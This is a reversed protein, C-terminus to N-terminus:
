RKKSTLFIAFSGLIAALLSSGLIAVKGIDIIAPDSFALNDIFISMTFGIGGLIGIAALQIWSSGEPLVALKLKVVLLSFLFIGLPKGVVLGVLIGYVIPPITGTLLSFDFTVGANALAFLPMILFNVWPHLKSEFLHMMPTIKNIENDMNHIITQQESNALVEVESNSVEVFKDLFYRMRVSFRVENIATKAPITAALVVGAITAHIGSMYVFYWLLLGPILYLIVSHVKARNLILLFVVVVLAYIFYVYHLEHSPYFVALVVIAGLDDVIALATLFIKLSLPCRKGLIALVGIAFAIDTAMPIGWGNQTETGINLVLYLVAPVIMGGIAAFFPLMAHKFSSLEGVMMERKIELGVVFFFVAMLGDNIWHLLSMKISFNGFSLGMPISWIEQLNKLSPTNAIVLAVVACIFLVIGGTSQSHFFTSFFSRWGSLHRLQKTKSVRVQETM